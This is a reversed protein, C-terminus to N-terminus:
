GNADALAVSKLTQGRQNLQFSDAAAKAELAITVSGAYTRKRADVELRVSQKTPVVDHDLRHTAARAATSFAMAFSLALLPAPSLRMLVELRSVLPVRSIPRSYLSTPDAATGCGRSPDGRGATASGPIAYKRVARM